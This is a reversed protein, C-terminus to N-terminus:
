IEVVVIKVPGSSLTVAIHIPQNCDDYGYYSERGHLVLNNSFIAACERAEDYKGWYEVIGMRMIKPIFILNIWSYKVLQDIRILYEKNTREKREETNTM